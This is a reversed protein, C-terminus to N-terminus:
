KDYISFNSKEAAQHAEMSDRYYRYNNDNKRKKAVMQKNIKRNKSNNNVSYRKSEMPSYKRSKNTSIMGWSVSQRDYRHIEHPKFRKAQIAKAKKNTIGIPRPKSTFGEQM